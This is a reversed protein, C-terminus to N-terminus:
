PGGHERDGAIHAPGAFDSIAYGHNIVPSNYPISGRVLDLFGTVVIHVLKNVFPGLARDM